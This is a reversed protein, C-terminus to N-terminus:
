TVLFYSNGPIIGSIKFPGEWSPSWKGFRHDQAGLPLIMKWVLNNIQFSKERVRMNYSKAVRLKEKEIEGLAVFRKDEVDDIRDMMMEGYENASLLDQKAVRDVQLNIEV